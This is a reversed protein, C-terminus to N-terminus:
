LAPWAAIGSQQVVPSMVLLSLTVALLAAVSRPPISRGFAGRLIALVVAVKVYATLAIAALALLTLVAFVTFAEVPAGSPAPARAAHAAAPALLMMSVSLLSISRKPDM